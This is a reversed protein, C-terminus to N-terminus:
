CGLFSKSWQALENYNKTWLPGLPKQSYHYFLTGLYMSEVLWNMAFEQLLGGVTPEVSSSLLSQDDSLM